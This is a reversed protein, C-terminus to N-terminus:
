GWLKTESFNVAEAAANCSRNIARALPDKRLLVLVAVPAALEFGIGSEFGVVDQHVNQQARTILLSELFARVVDEPM